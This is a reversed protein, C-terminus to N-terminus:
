PKPINEGPVAPVVLIEGPKVLGLSERALTEIMEPEQLSALEKDLEEQQKLLSETQLHQQAIDRKIQMIQYGSLLFSFLLYGGLVGVMIKFYRPVKRKRRKKRQSAYKEPFVYLFPQTAAKPKSKLNYVM